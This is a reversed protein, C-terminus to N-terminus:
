SESSNNLTAFAQESEDQTAKPHKELWDMFKTLINAEMQGSIRFRVVSKTDVLFTEPTGTVGFQLSVEGKTDRLIPFTLGYTKRWLAIDNWQDEVNISVLKFHKRSPILSLKYIRELEPAEDRCVVCSSTWFHILIWADNMSKQTSYTNGDSSPLSFSPIHKGYLQTPQFAPNKQLGLVMFVIM